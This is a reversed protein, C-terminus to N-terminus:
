HAKAEEEEKRRKYEDYALDADRMCREYEVRDVIKACQSRQYSQGASYFQETTCAALALAAVLAALALSPIKM